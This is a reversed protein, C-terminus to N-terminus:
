KDTSASSVAKITELLQLLNKMPGHDGRELADPHFHMIENRLVRV